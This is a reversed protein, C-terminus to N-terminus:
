SHCATMGEMAMHADTETNYRGMMSFRDSPTPIEKVMSCTKTTKDFVIYFGESALVPAAFASVLTAALLLKKM